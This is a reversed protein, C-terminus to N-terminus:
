LMVADPSAESSAAAEVESFSSGRSGSSCSRSDDGGVPMVMVGSVGSTEATVTPGPSPALQVDVSSSVIAVAAEGPQVATAALAEAAVAAATAAATAAADGAAAAAADGAPPVGDDGPGEPQEQGAAAQGAAQLLVSQAAQGGLAAAADTAAIAATAMSATATATAPATAAAAAAATPARMQAAAPSELVSQLDGVSPSRTRVHSLTSLSNSSLSRVRVRAGVAASMNRLLDHNSPVHKIRGETFGAPGCAAVGVGDRVCYSTCRCYLQGRDGADASQAAGHQQGRTKRPIIALALCTRCIVYTTTCRVLCGREQQLSHAEQLLGAEGTNGFVFDFVGLYKSRYLLAACCPHTAPVHVWTHM